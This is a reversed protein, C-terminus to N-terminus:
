RHGEGHGEGELSLSYVAPVMQQERSYDSIHTIKLNYWAGRAQIINLGEFGQQLRPKVFEALFSFGPM